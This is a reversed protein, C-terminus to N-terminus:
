AKMNKDGDDDSSDDDSSSDDDEELSKKAWEQAATILDESVRKHTWGTEETLWSMELKYPKEQVEEHTILLTKALLPLAEACTKEQFKHKEIETKAARAGKGLACGYYRYSSGDHEAMCLQPSKTRQDYGAIIMSAGFPRLHYYCTYAHLFGGMHENLVAPSMAHGFNRRYARTEEQARNVLQRADAAWGSVAVGIHDDVHYIKRNSTAVLMKSTLLKEVALVIGDKCRVGVCTGSQEIAKQAYEVQFVRGDPSYTACSDDYGAGTSSM